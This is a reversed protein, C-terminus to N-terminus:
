EGSKKVNTFVFDHLITSIQKDTRNLLEISKSMSDGCIIENRKFCQLNRKYLSVPLFVDLMTGLNILMPLLCAQKKGINISMPQLCDKMKGINTLM